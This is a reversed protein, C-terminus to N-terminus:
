RPPTRNGLNDKLKSIFDYGNMDPMNIDVIALNWNKEGTKNLVELPNNYTEVELGINTLENELYRLILMNDDVILIKNGKINLEEDPNDSAAVAQSKGASKAKYLANDAALLLDKPTLGNLKYEAIGASFTVKFTRSGEEDSFSISSFKNILKTIKNKADQWGANNLLLVFEEGGYRALIDESRIQGELVTVLKKLVEDGVLRGYTDNVHKFDDLDLMAISFMTEYRLAYAVQKALADDFYTRSYAGTLYDRTNGKMIKETKLLQNKVRAKLEASNFPKTIYDDAGLEWGEVRANISSKASLFLVPIWEWKPNAKIIEILMFGNIDPLIIDLLILDFNVKELKKLGEQGSSAWVVELNFESLLEKVQEYVAQEDDIILIRGESLDPSIKKEDGELLLANNEQVIKSLYVLINKLEMKDKDNLEYKGDKLQALKNEWPLLMDSIASFGITGATCTISHIHQYWTNNKDEEPDVASLAKIHSLLDRLFIKKIRPSPSNM